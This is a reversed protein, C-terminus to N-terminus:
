IKRFLAGWFCIQAGQTWSSVHQIIYIMIKCCSVSVLMQTQRENEPFVSGRRLGFIECGRGWRPGTYHADTHVLTFRGLWTGWIMLPVSSSGSSKSYIISTYWSKVFHCVWRRGEVKRWKNDRGGIHDVCERETDENTDGTHTRMSAGGQTHGGWEGRRNSLTLRLWIVGRWEPVATVENRAIWVFPRRGWPNCMAMWYGIWLHVTSIFVCICLCLYLYIVVSSIFFLHSYLYLFVFVYICIWLYLYM